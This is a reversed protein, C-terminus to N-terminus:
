RCGEGDVAHIPVLLPDLVKHQVGINKQVVWVGEEDEVFLIRPM